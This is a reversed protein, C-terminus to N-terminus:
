PLLATFLRCSRLECFCLFVCAAADAKSSSGGGKARVQEQLMRLTTDKFKMEEQAERVQERQLKLKQRLMRIEEQMDKRQQLVSELHDSMVAGEEELAETRSKQLDAEKLAAALRLGLERYREDM